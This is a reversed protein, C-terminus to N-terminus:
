NFLDENVEIESGARLQEILSTMLSTSKQRLVRQEIAERRESFGAMDPTRREDLTIVYYGQAGKLVGDALPADKTLAFAAEAIARENGIEPIAESRKFLASTNVERGAQQAAKELGIDAESVKAHFAEADNKAQKDQKRALLDAEVRERVAALEPVKPAEKELAQILYYTGEIEVVDSIEDPELALAATAFAARGAGLMEPGASDFFDARMVTLKQETAVEALDDGQFVSEYLTEAADLALEKAQVRRLQERIEGTVEELPKKSAENVKEVKILHWGFSTRVPDSIEGPRLAFAAEAFPAVMQEKQFEGLDGGRDKTPGESYIKALEGFDEGDRAMELVPLLREKAAAVAAEDADEDVKILIHRAKVTKPQEFQAANSSYYDAIREDAITVQDIFDDAAFAIFQVKVKPNTKYKEANQEFYTVLEEDSLVIQDYQKPDFHVYDIAVQAEEWLYWQKLEAESVQASGAVFAQLTEIRMAERQQAEFQEPSTRIQALVRRYQENNFVGNRQFAPVAKLSQALQEDSVQIGLRDAEALLLRQDVIQDMAQWKLQLMEITEDTLNDGFQRRLNDLLNNYARLYENYAIPEGNVSAVVTAQRDRFSGVGWFVFVIVIVGLIVKIMWSGAHKRMLDLM